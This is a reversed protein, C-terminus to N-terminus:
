VTVLELASRELVLPPQLRNIPVAAGQDDVHGVKSKWFVRKLKAGM